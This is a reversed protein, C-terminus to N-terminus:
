PAHGDQSASRGSDALGTVPGLGPSWRLRLPSRKSRLRGADHGCRPSARGSALLRCGRRGGAFHPGGSGEPGGRLLRAGVGGARVLHTARRRPAGLWGGQRGCQPPRHGRPGRASRGTSDFLGAAHLGGTLAFTPQRERLKRPLEALLSAEVRLPDTIPSAHALAQAITRKGCTGCSSSAYLNRAFRGPDLELGERPILLLVNDAHSGTSCHQVRASDTERAVIGETVAFGTGLEVDHGPTRM